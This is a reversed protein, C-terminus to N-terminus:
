TCRQYPGPCPGTFHQRAPQNLRRWSLAWRTGKLLEHNRDTVTAPCSPLTLLVIEAKNIMTLRTFLRLDLRNQHPIHRGITKMRTPPLTSRFIHLHFFGPLLCVFLHISLRRGTQRDKYLSSNFDEETVKPLIAANESM